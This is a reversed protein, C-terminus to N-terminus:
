PNTLLREVRVGLAKAVKEATSLQPDPREGSELRTWHPRPMGAADAAQQQTLSRRERLSKIKTPDLPMPMRYFAAAGGFPRRPLLILM